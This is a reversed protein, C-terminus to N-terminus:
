LEVADRHQQKLPWVDQVRVQSACVADSSLTSLAFEESVTVKLGMKHARTGSQTLLLFGPLCQSEDREAGLPEHLTVGNRGADHHVTDGFQPGFSIKGKKLQKTEPM